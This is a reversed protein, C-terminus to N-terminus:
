GRAARTSARWERDAIKYALFLENETPNRDFEDLAMEVAASHEDGCYDRAALIAKAMREEIKV